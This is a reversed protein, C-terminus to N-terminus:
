FEKLIRGKIEEPYLLIKNLNKLEIWELVYKDDEDKRDLEPGVFQMEGKFSKILFFYTKVNNYPDTYEWLLKEIEVDFNTEEKAERLLAQEPTEGKEIAGGPLVYYERGHKLRHIVLIKGDDIFIARAGTGTGM